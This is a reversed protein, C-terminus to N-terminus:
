YSNKDVAEVITEIRAMPGYGTGGCALKAEIPNVICLKQFINPLNDLHKKTMPNFWMETNMAPAIILPKSKIWAYAICTLFNDCIGIALKTLTNATLPAILLMDAWERFDIHRVPDKKHYGGIPWEDKDRFLPVKVGSRKDSFEAELEDGVGEPLFYLGPTTSVIQVEHGADILAGVMKPTLIGAVSGTLGLIIKM